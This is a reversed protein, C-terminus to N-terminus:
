LRIPQLSLLDERSIPNKSKNSIYLLNENNIVQTENQDIFRKIEGTNIYLFPLSENNLHKLKAKAYDNVQPEYVFMPYAEKQKKAEIVENSAEDALLVYDAPGVDTSYEQVTVGVGVYRNLQRLGQIDWGFALLQSNIQDRAIQECNQNTM